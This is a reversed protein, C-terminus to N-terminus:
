AQADFAAALEERLTMGKSAAIAHGNVGSAASDRVSTTKARARRAAETEAQRRADMEAKIKDARLKPDAWIAADYAEQLSLAPDAMMLHGMRVRVTEFHTNRSDARFAEIQAATRKESALREMEERAQRHAEDRAQRELLQDVRPDRFQQPQPAQQTSGQAGQHVLTSLDFGMTQALAPLARAPDQRIAAEWELLRGFAVHPQVGLERLRPEYPAYAQRFRDVEQTHEVRQEIALLLDRERVAVRERAEPSLATWDAESWAEPRAAAETTAETASTEGEAPAEPELAPGGNHGAAFRGREDRTPAADRGEAKDYAQSLLSRLDDGPRSEEVPAEVPAASEVVPDNITESM